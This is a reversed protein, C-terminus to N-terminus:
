ELNFRITTEAKAKVVMGEVTGPAFRWQAVCRRVREEFIGEPDAAVIQIDDVHGAEDVIFSVKVWGQIGRSRARMPYVPPIRTLVTLPGDLQGAEFTDPLGSMHALPASELPPLQLA